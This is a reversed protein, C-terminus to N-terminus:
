TWNDQWAESLLIQYPVAAVFFYPIKQLPKREVKLFVSCNIASTLVLVYDKDGFAQSLCLYM